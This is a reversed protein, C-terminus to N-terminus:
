RTAPALTAQRVRQIAEIKPGARREMLTVEELAREGLRLRGHVEFYSTRVDVGSLETGPAVGLAQILAELSRFSKTQRQRVLRDAGGMDLAPIVAALVEPPAANVNVATYVPLLTVLPALRDISAKDLGLWGLDAVQQPLLPATPSDALVAALLQSALTTALSAPLGANSCLRELVKVQEPVLKGDVVLNRLNYRGQVDLIRGSIYADLDADANNNQDAALFASLSTELLPAPWQEDPGDYAPSRIADERLVLRAVSLGGVLMQAAQTRAREAIEVEVARWQQWVMGAALTAVVTLLVMAVLLAAGRAPPKPVRGQRQTITM